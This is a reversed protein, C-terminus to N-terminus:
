NSASMGVGSYKVSEMGILTNFAHIENIKFDYSATNTWTLTQGPEAAKLSPRTIM